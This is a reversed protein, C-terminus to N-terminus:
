YGHGSLTIRQPSNIANDAVTLFGTRLGTRKPTFTVYIDCHTGPKIGSGCYNNLIRFDGRINFSSVVMEIQGTNKISARLPASKTGVKQAPFTLSPTFSATSNMGDGYITVPWSWAVGDGAGPIYMPNLFSGARINFEYLYGYHSDITWFNVGDPDLGLKFSDPSWSGPNYIKPSVLQYPYCGQCPAGWRTAMFGYVGYNQTDALVILSADPLVRLAAVYTSGGTGGPPCINVYDPGQTKTAVNYSKIECGYSSYLLTKQDAALAIEAGVYGNENPDPAPTYSGLPIGTPDFKLIPGSFQGVYFNGAQDHLISDPYTYGSGFTGLQNGNNDFKVVFAGYGSHTTAYVNGAGDFTIGYNCIYTPDQGPLATSLTQLLAWSTPDYVSITGNCSGIFVQGVQFSAHALSSASALAAVLLTTLLPRKM